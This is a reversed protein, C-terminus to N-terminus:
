LSTCKWLMFVLICQWSSQSVGCPTLTFCFCAPIAWDTSWRAKPWSTMPEFRGTMESTVNPLWRWFYCWWVLTYLQSWAWDPFESSVRLIMVHLQSCIVPSSSDVRAKFVWPCLWSFDSVSLVLPVVFHDCQWWM